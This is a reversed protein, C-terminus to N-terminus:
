LFSLDMKATNNSADAAAAAAAATWIPTGRVVMTLPSVPPTFTQSPVFMPPSSSPVTTHPVGSIAAHALLNLSSDQLRAPSNQMPQVSRNYYYAPSKLTAALRIPPSPLKQSIQSQFHPNPNGSSSHSWILYPQSHPQSHITFPALNHVAAHNMKRSLTELHSNQSQLKVQSNHRALNGSGTNAAVASGTAGGSSSSSVTAASSKSGAPHCIPLPSQPQRQDRSPQESDAVRAAVVPVRVVNRNREHMRLHRLREDNRGFTKSCLTCAFSRLMEHTCRVHRVLHEMRRFERSCQLCSYRGDTRRGRAPRSPAKDKGAINTNPPQQQQKAGTDGNDDRDNHYELTQASSSTADGLTGATSARSRNHTSLTAEETTPSRSGNTAAATWTGNPPTAGTEAPASVKM